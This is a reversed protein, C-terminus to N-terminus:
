AASWDVFTGLKNDLRKLQSKYYWRGAIKVKYRKEAQVTDVRLGTRFNAYYKLKVMTM